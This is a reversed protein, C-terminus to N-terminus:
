CGQHNINIAKIANNLYPNNICYFAGGRTTQAYTNRNLDGFCTYDNDLAYAWKCHDSGQGWKNGNVDMEQSNGLTYQTDCTPEYPAPAGFTQAIISSEIMPVIGDLFIDTEFPVKKGKDNTIMDYGNKYIAKILASPTKM